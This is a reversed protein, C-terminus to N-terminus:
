QSMNLNTDVLVAEALCREQQSVGLVYQYMPNNRWLHLVKCKRKSFKMLNRYAWKELRDSHLMLTCEAGDELDNILTNLL